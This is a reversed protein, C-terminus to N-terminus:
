REPRRLRSLPASHRRPPGALGLSMLLWAGPEPVVTAQQTFHINDLGTSGLNNLYLHVTGTGTLATTLPRYVTAPELVGQFSLLNPSAFSGSDDWIRINTNYGGSSWTAIDFGRLTVNWGADPVFDIQHVVNFSQHGLAWVLSAYGSSWLSAPIGTSLSTFGLEVNPTWGAGEFYETGGQPSGTVRDGYAALGGDGFTSTFPLVTAQAALPCAAVAAVALLKHAYSM